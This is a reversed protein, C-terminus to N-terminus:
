FFQKCGAGVSAGVSTAKWLEPLLFAIGFLQSYSFTNEMFIKQPLPNALKCNTDRWTYNTVSSRYTFNSRLFNPALGNLSKCVM